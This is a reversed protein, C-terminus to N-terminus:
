CWYEMSTAADGFSQALVVGFPVDHCGAPNTNEISADLESPHAKLVHPAEEPIKIACGVLMFEVTLAWPGPLMVADKVLGRSEKGADLM